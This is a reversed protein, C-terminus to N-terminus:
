TDLPTLFVHSLRREGLAPAVLQSFASSPQREPTALYSEYAAKDTWKEWVQMEKSGDEIDRFGM